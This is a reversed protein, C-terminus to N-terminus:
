LCIGTKISLTYDNNVEEVEVKQLERVDM